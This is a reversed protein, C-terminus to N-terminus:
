VPIVVKGRAHGSEVDTMATTQHRLQHHPWTRLHGPRHRSPQPTRRNAPQRSRRNPRHTRRRPRSTATTSWGSRTSGSRICCTVAACGSTGPMCTPLSIAWRIAWMCHTGRRTRSCTWCTCRRGWAAQRRVALVRRTRPPSRRTATGGTRGVRRSRRPSVPTMGGRCSTM